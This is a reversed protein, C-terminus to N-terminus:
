EERMLQFVSRLSFLNCVWLLIATVITIILFQLFIGLTLGFQTVIIFVILVGISFFILKFKYGWFDSLDNKVIWLSASLLLVQVLLYSSAAGIGKWAPVSMWNFLVSLVAAAAYLKYLVTERHTAQFYAGFIYNLSGPIFCLALLQIIKLTYDENGRLLIKSVFDSYFYGTLSILWAMIWLMILSTSLLKKSKVSDTHLRAFMALLLGGFSLSIITLADYLRFCSAYIGAEERGNPLLKEIWISDSKMFISSTLYILAFPLCYRISEKLITKNVTLNLFRFGNYFLIIMCVGTCIALSYTQIWVFKELSLELHLEPFYIIIGLILILIFRDLTSLFSDTKYMGIGAINARFFLIASILIQNIAIHLIFLSNVEAGYWLIAFVLTMLLYIISLVIKFGLLSSAITNSKERNQSIVRSTFNQIGFDNIVQLILTFNLINYYYGYDHNGIIFQVKREIGFLYFPKILLNIFVLYVINTVFAKKM